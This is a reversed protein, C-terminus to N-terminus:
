VFQNGFAGKTLNSKSTRKRTLIKIINGKEKGTITIPKVKGLNKYKM